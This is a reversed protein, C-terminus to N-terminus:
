QSQVVRYFRQEEPGTTDSVTVVGNTAVLPYGLDNWNAQTLNTIYQIQYIQGPVTSWTLTLSRNTQTVTQFATPAPLVFTPATAGSFGMAAVGTFHNPSLDYLTSTGPALHSFDFLVQTFADSPPVTVPPTVSAGSYRAVCSIRVWQVAGIFSQALAGGGTYLFAGISMVSNPSNAISSDGSFDLKGIQVGDVYERAENSDHVFALHHWSNDGISHALSIGGNNQNDAVWTSGGVASPSAWFQKDGSGSLQEEFIRPSGYSPVTFSSPIQIEAEITMQNTVLTHGNILITDTPRTFIACGSVPPLTPELSYIGTAVTTQNSNVTVTQSPPTIWGAVTSFGVTHSGVALGSVTAANTQCVGGDVQWQAGADVAGTPSITVELFGFQQVYTGTAVITQNSPTTWGSITTFSVTHNAVSLGSVTAGSSQYAGGDVQWHAGANVAAAPSLMVQLSGGAPPVVTVRFITGYGNAGGGTTTGYFNGNNDQVLGCYPFEGNTGNFSVLTTLTGNTTIQFVTGNGNAGGFYTTGYFSGDSGQVLAGMPNAGDTGNFSALTTLVGSPTMQFVTGVGNGINLSLNGGIFTTGYFNGDAGQLLPSYPEDGNGGSFSALTTLTGNTTIQFVTGDGNGNPGSYKTTGYFNGDAGQVLGAYPNAGDSVFLVGNFSALTTLTGSPTMQFVTGTDEFGDENGNETTGYFNGDKGQVLAGQPFGGDSFNFSVLTTLTANTTMKFITGWGNAGGYGTTGYFNGNTGQVLAATPSEGNGGNFSILTTLTGNTTIKFVTGYGNAGSTTTGYFNGDNGQVLAACPDGGDDGDTFSYLQEFTIQTQACSRNVLPFMGGLAAISLMVCKIKSWRNGFRNPCSRLGSGSNGSSLCQKKMIRTWEHGSKRRSSKAEQRGPPVSFLPVYFAHKSSDEGEGVQVLLNKVPLLLAV